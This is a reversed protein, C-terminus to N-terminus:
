LHFVDIEQHLAEDVVRAMNSNTIKEPAIVDRSNEANTKTALLELRNSQHHIESLFKVM